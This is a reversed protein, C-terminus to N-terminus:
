QVTKDEECEPTQATREADLKISASRKIGNVTFELEWIHPEDPNFPLRWGVTQLIEFSRQARTFLREIDNGEYVTGGGAEALADLEESDISSGFGLLSVQLWPRNRMLEELQARNIANTAFTTFAAGNKTLGDVVPPEESDLGSINDRGDTFVALLHNDRDGAAIGNTRAESANRVAFEMASYLRTFGDFEQPPAPIDAIDDFTWDGDARSVWQNFWIVQWTFNGPREAWQTEGDRLLQEASEKMLDFLKAEVVSDSADLLLTVHIDSSLNEEDLSQGGEWLGSGPAEGDITQTITTESAPVAGGDITKVVFSAFGETADRDTCFEATRLEVGPRNKTAQVVTDGSCAMAMIAVAALSVLHRM